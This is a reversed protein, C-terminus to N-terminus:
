VLVPEELKIVEIEEETYPPEIWMETDNPHFHTEQPFHTHCRYISALVNDKWQKSKLDLQPRYQVTKEKLLSLEAFNSAETPNLSIAVPVSPPTNCVHITVIGSGTLVPKQQPVNSARNGKELIKAVNLGLKGTTVLWQKKHKESGLGNLCNILADTFRTVQNYPGYASQNTNTAFLKLVERQKQSISPHVLATARIQQIEQLEPPTQRCADIFYCQIKAQCRAMGLFTSHFDIANEWLRIESEGFDETLLLPYDVVKELGHGCFYFIAVNDKHSNCREYWKDFALKIKKMTAAEVSFQEGDQPRVYKDAPSLLLEVSGLPADPNNLNKLIWDGFAKASIPPSTLQKLRMPNDLVPGKGDLLHPYEGVGIIFVHTHPKEVEINELITTM